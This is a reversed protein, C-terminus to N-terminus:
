WNKLRDMQKSEPGYHVADVFEGANPPIAGGNKMVWKMTIKLNNNAVCRMWFAYIKRLSFDNYNQAAIFGKENAKWRRQSIINALDFMSEIHSVHAYDNECGGAEVFGELEFRNLYQKLDKHNADAEAASKEDLDKMYHKWDWGLPDVKRLIDSM